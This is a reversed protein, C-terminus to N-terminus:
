RFFAPAVRLPLISMAGLSRAPIAAFICFLTLILLHGTAALVRAPSDSEPFPLGMPTDPLQLSRASLSTFTDFRRCQRAFNAGSISAICTEDECIFIYCFKLLGGHSRSLYTWRSCAASSAQLLKHSPCCAELHFLAVNAAHILLQCRESVTM